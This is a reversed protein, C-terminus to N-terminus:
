CGCRERHIGEPPRTELHVSNLQPEEPVKRQFSIFTILLLSFLPRIHLLKSSLVARIFPNSIVFLTTKFAPTVGITAPPLMNITNTYKKLRFLSLLKGERKELTIRIPPM